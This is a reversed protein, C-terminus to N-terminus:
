RQGMDKSGTMASGSDSGAAVQASSGASTRRSALCTTASGPAGRSTVVAGNVPAGTAENGVEV